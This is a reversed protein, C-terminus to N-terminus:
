VLQDSCKFCLFLWQIHVRNLLNHFLIKQLLQLFILCCGLIEFGRHAIELMELQFNGVLPEKEQWFGPILCGFPCFDLVMRMIKGLGPRIEPCRLCKCDIKKGLKCKEPM